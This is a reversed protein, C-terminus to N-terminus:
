SINGFEWHWAEPRSGGPEAWAPHRWGFRGANAHLWDDMGSGAREAGGCLDVALAWGHNSTGPVAALSPKEQYLRVQTAYDRYSDTVCIAQGGHSAAYAASMQDFAAAADCRLRQGPAQRLPSLASGPIFGNPYGGWERGGGGTCGGGVHVSAGARLLRLAAARSAARRLAAARAAAAKEAAIKALRAQEAEYAAMATKLRAAVQASEKKLAVVRAAADAAADAAQSALAKAEQRVQMAQVRTVEAARLIEGRRSSVVNLYGLGQLTDAVTTGTGGSVLFSAGGGVPNRYAAAAIAGMERHLDALKADLAASRRQAKVAEKSLEAARARVKELAATGRTLDAAAEDVQHKLSALESKTPVDPRPSASSAPALVVIPATVLAALAVVVPTTLRRLASVHLLGPTRLRDPSTSELGDIAAGM